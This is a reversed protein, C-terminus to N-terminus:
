LVKAIKTLLNILMFRKDMNLNFCDAFMRRTESWCAYLAEKDEAESLSDKIFKEILEQLMVFKENDAVADNCFSLLKELAFNRKACLVSCMDNYLSVIDYDAYKIAKGISGRSIAVINKIMTENLQSRYRRLLSAVENDTLLQLPLKTCRSRITPLLAGQNHNVLILLTKAPPEELMKLLANNASKNMDDASDIIVIRWGNNFSTKSLFDNIQRISDVVIFASKKLESLEAESMAEGNKIAKIVKKRDTETYDREIVLLDPHSGSAVLKFINDECPVNLSKYEDKKNEDAWLLFRAIRFALSAKGIGKPGSLLLAHHLNNNKWAQLFIDEAKQQGSLYFNHRPSLNEM